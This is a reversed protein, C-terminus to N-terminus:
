GVSDSPGLNEPVRWTTLELLRVSLEPDAGEGLARLLDEPTLVRAADGPSVEAGAEGADGEVDPTRRMPEPSSAASPPLGPLPEPRPGGGGCAAAGATLFALALARFGATM